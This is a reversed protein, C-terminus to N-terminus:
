VKEKIEKDLSENEGKVAFYWIYGNKSDIKSTTWAEDDIEPYHRAHEIKGDIRAQLYLKFTEIDADKTMKFIGFECPNISSDGLFVAYEEVQTFDPASAIDGYLSRILDDDLKDEDKEANSLYLFGDSLANDEVIENATAFTDFEAKESDGNEKKDGSKECSVLAVLFVLTLIMALFRKM